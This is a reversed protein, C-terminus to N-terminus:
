TDFSLIKIEVRQNLKRAEKTRSRTKPKRKGYGKYTLRSPEIGLKVLHSAVSKARSKSLKDCYSHPPVTNTHGGIEVYIDENEALFEYLEELVENSGEGISSTDAEFYLNKIEIVQGKTLKKRDLKLISEKKPPAAEVVAAEEKEIAPPPPTKKRRKHPPIIEEEVEAIEEEGPCPVQVIAGANDVLINGNYPFMTPRKYSVEFTIYRLRKTPRFKFTYTKWDTNKVYDSEALIEQDGCVGTGGYIYLIIPENYNFLRASNEKMASMYRNSRRLDITFEYCQDPELATSLRQSISEYTDNSRSVMGVYTDGDSPEAAHEFHRSYASHLDPPTENPFNIRGCDTWYRIGKTEFTGPHPVDEFSPNNLLITDMQASAPLGAAVVLFLILLTYHIRRM